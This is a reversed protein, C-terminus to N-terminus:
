RRGRGRSRFDMVCSSDVRFFQELLNSGPGRDEDDEDSFVVEGFVVGGFVVADDNSCVSM